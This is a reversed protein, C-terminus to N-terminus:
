FENPALESVSLFNGSIGATFSEVRARITEGREADPKADICVISGPRIDVECRVRVNRFEHTLGNGEESYRAVSVRSIIRVDKVIMSCRGRLGRALDRSVGVADVRSM